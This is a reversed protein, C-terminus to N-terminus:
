QTYHVDQASDLSLKLQISTLQDEVVGCHQHWDQNSGSSQLLYGPDGLRSGVADGDGAAGKCMREQVRLLM